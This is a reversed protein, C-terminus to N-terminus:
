ILVTKPISCAIDMTVLSGCSETNLFLDHAYNSLTQRQFFISPYHAKYFIRFCNLIIIKPSLSFYKSSTALNFIPTSYKLSFGIAETLWRLQCLAICKTSRRISILTIWTHIHTHTKCTYLKHESIGKWLEGQRKKVWKHEYDYM